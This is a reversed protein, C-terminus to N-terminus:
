KVIKDYNLLWKTATKIKQLVIAERSHEIKETMESMQM